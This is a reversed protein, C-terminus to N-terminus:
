CYSQCASAEAVSAKRVCVASSTILRCLKLQRKQNYYLGLKIFSLFQMASFKFCSRKSAGARKAQPQGGVISALRFNQRRQREMTGGVGLYESSFDIPANQM